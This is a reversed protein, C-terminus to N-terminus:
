RGKRRPARRQGPGANAPPPAAQAADETTIRTRPIPPPADPRRLLASFLTDELWMCYREVTWGAHVLLMHRVEPSALAWITRAADEITLGDRLVGLQALQVALTEINSFRYQQARSLLEAVDSETRAANKMIEYISGVREQVGNMDAVFLSLVRRPNTESAVARAGATQLLPPGGPQGSVLRNMLAALVGRKSGFTAFITPPAMAADRAIMEITTEAYGREAFLRRAAELVREQNELARQRRGSADYRRRRKPKAM